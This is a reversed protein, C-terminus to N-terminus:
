PNGSGSPGDPATARAAGGPIVLLKDTRSRTLGKSLYKTAAQHQPKQAIPQDVPSTAPVTM